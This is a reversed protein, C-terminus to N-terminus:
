KPLEFTGTNRVYGQLTGPKVLKGRGVHMHKGSGKIGKWKGTGYLTKWTGEVRDSPASESFEMVVYDGDLDTYKALSYITSQGGAHRAVGVELVSMNEFIKNEQNSRTIGLCEFSAFRFEKDDSAPTSTCSAYQTFDIPELAQAAPSLLGLVIAVVVISEIRYSM